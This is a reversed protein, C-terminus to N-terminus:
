LKKRRLSPKGKEPVLGRIQPYFIVFLSSVLLSLLFVASSPELYSRRNGVFELAWKRQGFRLELTKSVIAVNKPVENTNDHVVRGTEVDTIKLRVDKVTNKNLITEAFEETPIVFSVFGFLNEQREEPTTPFTGRHYVPLYLIVGERNSGFITLPPVAAILGNDRATNLAQLREPNTTLDNGVTSQGEAHGSHYQIIYHYDLNGVTKLQSREEETLESDKIYRTWGMEITDGFRESTNFSQNFTEWEQPTISVQSHFLGRFAYMINSYLELRDSTDYVVSWLEKDFDKEVERSVQMTFTALGFILLGALFIRSFLIKNIFDGM